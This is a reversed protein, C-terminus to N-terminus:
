MRALLMLSGKYFPDEVDMSVSQNVELKYQHLKECRSISM